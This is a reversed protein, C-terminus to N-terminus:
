ELQQNLLPHSLNSRRQTRKWVQRTEVLGSKETEHLGFYCTHFTDGVMIWILPGFKLDVMLPRRQRSWVPPVDDQGEDLKVPERNFRTDGVFEEEERIFKEMAESWVEHRSRRMMGLLLNCVKPSLARLTAAGWHESLVYKCLWIWRSMWFVIWFEWKQASGQRQRQGRSYARTGQIHLADKPGKFPAM